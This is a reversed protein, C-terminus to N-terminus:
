ARLRPARTQEESLQWLRRAADADQAAASPTVRREDTFYGGSIGGAEESDVLWVLTQAGKRPSRSFPRVITMGIRM